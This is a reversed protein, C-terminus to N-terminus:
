YGGIQSKVDSRIKTKEAAPQKGYLFQRIGFAKKSGSGAHHGTIFFLIREM